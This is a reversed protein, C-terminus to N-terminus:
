RISRQVQPVWTTGWGRATQPTGERRQASGAAPRDPAAAGAVGPRPGRRM